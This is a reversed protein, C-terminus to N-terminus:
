ASPWAVASAAGQQNEIIQQTQSPPYIAVFGDGLCYWGNCQTTLLTFPNATYLTGDAGYSFFETAAAFATTQSAPPNVTFQSGANVIVNASASVDSANFTYIGGSSSVSLNGNPDFALAVPTYVDHLRLIQPTSSGHPLEQVAGAGNDAIFLNGNKDLALGVPNRMGGMVVKTPTTSGYAYEQIQAPDNQCGGSVFVTGFKDVALGCAVHLGTQLSRIPTSLGPAYVDVTATTATSYTAIDESEVYLYGYQDFAMQWPQRGGIDITRSPTTSTASDFVRIWYDWTGNTKGGGAVYIGAQPAVQPNPPPQTATPTPTPAPTAPATTPVVPLASRVGGGGGCGALAAAFLAASITFLAERKM